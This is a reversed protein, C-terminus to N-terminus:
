GSVVKLLRREIPALIPGLEHGRRLVQGHEGILAWLGQRRAPASRSGINPGSPPAASRGSPPPTPGCSSRM